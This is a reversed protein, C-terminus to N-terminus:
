VWSMWDYQGKVPPPAHQEILADIKVAAIELQEKVDM